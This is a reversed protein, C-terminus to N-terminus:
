ENGILAIHCNLSISKTKNQINGYENYAGELEISQENGISLESTVNACFLITQNTIYRQFYYIDPFIINHQIKNMINKAKTKSVSVFAETKTATWDISYIRPREYLNCKHVFVLVFFIINTSNRIRNLGIAIFSLSVRMASLPQLWLIYAIYAFADNLRITEDIYIKM